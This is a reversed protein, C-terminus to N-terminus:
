YSLEKGRSKWYNIIPQYPGFKHQTAPFSDAFPGRDYDIPKDEIHPYDYNKPNPRPHLQDDNVFAALDLAQQDTLYPKGPMAKDFPMNGKLWRAMKIIRHMSSGQQYSEPGWLPPYVYGNKDANLLGEGNNGHCRVCNETFLAAGREPSAATAPLAINWNKAGAFQGGKPAFGNIWKLYSLIALMERGDLPLPRGNHPRTICNNIRQALSLIKGERARYQPYREHTALLNFSYAKTGAEQHCNNCSLNNRTYHGNIGKPGIYYATNLLLARGYRVQDGFTDHPIAATDVMILSDGSKSVVATNVAAVSPRPKCSYVATFVLALLLGIWLIWKKKM